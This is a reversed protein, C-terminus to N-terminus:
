TRDGGSNSDALQAVTFLGEIGLAKSIESALAGHVGFIEEPTGREVARGADLVLVDTAVLAAFEIDHTAVAIAKGALRLEGM